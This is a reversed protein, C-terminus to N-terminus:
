RAISAQVPGAGAASRQFESGNWAFTCHGSSPAPKAGTRFAIAESLGNRFVYAGRVSDPAGFFSVPSCPAAKLTVEAAALVRERIRAAERWSTLHVQVGVAGVVIAAGLVLVRGPTLAPVPSAMAVLAIVWFATSLYLYRANELDPTIFLMSYVPLVAVLAAIVCRVVVTAPLENTRSWAYAAAAVIAALAWLFAVAPWSQVIRANWPITLTGIPRAILEKLM